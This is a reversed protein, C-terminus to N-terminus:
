TSFKQKHAVRILVIVIQIIAGVFTVDRPIKIVLLLNYLKYSSLYNLCRSLAEIQQTLIKNDALIANTTSLDLV